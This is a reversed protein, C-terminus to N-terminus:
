NTYTRRISAKPKKKSLFTFEEKEKSELARGKDNSKQDM